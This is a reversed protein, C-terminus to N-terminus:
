DAADATDTVATDDTATDSSGTDAPATDLATGTDPAGADSCNDAGGTTGAACTHSACDCHDGSVCDRDGNCVFGCTGGPLCLLPSYCDSTHKCSAGFGDPLSGTDVVPNTDVGVTDPTGTDTVTGGGLTRCDQSSSSKPDPPCCVTQSLCTLGSACDDDRDCREGEGQNPDCGQSAVAFATLAVVSLLSARVSRLGM